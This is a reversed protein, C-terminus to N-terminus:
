QLFSLVSAHSQLTFILHTQAVLPSIREAPTEGASCERVGESGRKGEHLICVTVIGMLCCMFEANAIYIVNCIAHLELYILLKERNLSNKCVQSKSSTMTCALLGGLRGGIELDFCWDNPMLSPRGVLSFCVGDIEFARLFGLWFRVGKSM